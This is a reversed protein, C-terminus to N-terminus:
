QANKNKPLEAIRSFTLNTGAIPANRYLSGLGSLGIPLYDEETSNAYYHLHMGYADIAFLEHDTGSVGMRERFAVWKLSQNM